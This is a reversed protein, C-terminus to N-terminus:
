LIADMRVNVADPSTSTVEHHLCEDTSVLEDSTVSDGPLPKEQVLATFHWWLDWPLPGPDRCAWMKQSKPIGLLWARCSAMQLLWHLTVIFIVVHCAADAHTPYAHSIWEIHHHRSAINDILPEVRM